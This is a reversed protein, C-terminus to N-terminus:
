YNGMESPTKIGGVLIISWDYSNISKLPNLWKPKLNIILRCCSWYCELFYCLATFRTNCQAMNELNFDILPLPEQSLGELFPRSYNIAKQIQQHKNHAQSSNGETDARLPEYPNSNYQYYVFTLM